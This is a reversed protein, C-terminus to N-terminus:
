RMKIGPQVLSPSAFLLARDVSLWALKRLDYNSAFGKRKMTLLWSQTLKIMM